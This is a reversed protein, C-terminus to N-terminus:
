FPLLENMIERIRNIIEKANKYGYSNFSDEKANHLLTNCLLIIATSCQHDVVYPINKFIKEFLEKTSLETKTKVMLFCILNILELKEKADVALSNLSFNENYISTADQFTM